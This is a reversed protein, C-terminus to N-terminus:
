LIDVNYNFLRYHSQLLGVIDLSGLMINKCVTSLYVLFIYVGGCGRGFVPYYETNRRDFMRKPVNRKRVWFM